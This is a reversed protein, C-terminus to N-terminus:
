LRDSSFNHTVIGGLALRVRYMMIHYLKDTVQSMDTTKEQCELKRWWYFQDGRYLQFISSLPTLCCLGLELGSETKARHKYIVIALSNKVITVLRGNESGQLYGRVYM